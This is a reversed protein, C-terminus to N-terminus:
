AAHHAELAALREELQTIEIIRAVGALTDILVKATDPAVRGAAVADLIANAKMSLDGDPIHFKVTSVEARVPPVLREVILRCAQVDGRMAASLVVGIVAPGALEMERRFRTDRNRSGKPRGNPNGSQGKVFPVLGM